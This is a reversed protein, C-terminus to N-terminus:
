RGFEAVRQQMIPHKGRAVGYLNTRASTMEIFARLGGEAMGLVSGSLMAPLGSYVSLKYTYPAKAHPSLGLFTPFTPMTRHEPIFADKVVIDKSGSGRMGLTHWTDVLEVDARAIM